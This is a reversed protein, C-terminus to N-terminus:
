DKYKLEFYEEFNVYYLGNTKINEVVAPTVGRETYVIKEVIKEVVKVEPEDVNCIFTIDGDKKMVKIICRTKDVKHECLAVYYESNNLLWACQPTYKGSKLLEACEDFVGSHFGGVFWKGDQTIVYTYQKTVKDYPKSISYMDDIKWSPDVALVSGAVLCLTLIFRKM